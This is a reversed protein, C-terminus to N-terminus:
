ETPKKPPKERPLLPVAKENGDYKTLIGNGKMVGVIPNKEDFDSYIRGPKLMVKIAPKDKEAPKVIFPSVPGSYKFKTM